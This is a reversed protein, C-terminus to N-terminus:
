TLAAVRDRAQEVMIAASKVEDSTDELSRVEDVAITSGILSSTTARIDRLMSQMSEANNIADDLWVNTRQVILAIQEPPAWLDTM